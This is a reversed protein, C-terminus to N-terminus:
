VTSDLSPSRLFRDSHLKVLCYARLCVALLFVPMCLAFHSRTLGTVQTHKYNAAELFCPTQTYSFCTCFTLFVSIPFFLVLFNSIDM